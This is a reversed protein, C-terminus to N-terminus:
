LLIHLGYGFFLNNTLFIFIYKSNIFIVVVSLQSRAYNYYEYLRFFRINYYNINHDQGALYLLVFIVCYATLHTM